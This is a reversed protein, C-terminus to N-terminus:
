SNSCENLNIWPANLEILKNQMANYVKQKLEQMSINEVSIEPLFIARTRGPNLSFVSHYNLRCYNDPFIVPVVPTQTEIAIKFAGDYFSKLPCPTMNFTGEPAIVVSINKQLSRILEKISKARNEASTRDVMITANKYLVGFIPISAMSSKGLIRIHQKRFAKMLVPIDMYSTHNFVYVAAKERKINEIGINKHNFGWCFFAVDAWLRCLSYIFNGSSTKNFLLSILVFPFIIFLLLVFILFGYISFILMFFRKIHSM